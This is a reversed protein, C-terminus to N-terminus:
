AEDTMSVDIMGLCGTIVGIVLENTGDPDLGYEKFRWNAHHDAARHSIAAVDPRLVLVRTMKGTFRECLHLLGDLATTLSYM